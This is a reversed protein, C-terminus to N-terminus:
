RKARKELEAILAFGAAPVRDLPNKECYQDVWALLANGNGGGASDGTASGFANYASVFGLMWAELQQATGAKRRTTWDGCSDGNPYSYFYVQNPRQMSGSASQAFVLPALIAAFFRAKM